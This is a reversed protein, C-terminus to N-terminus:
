HSSLPQKDKADLSKLVWNEALLTDLTAHVLPAIATLDKKEAQLSISMKALQPLAYDLFYM